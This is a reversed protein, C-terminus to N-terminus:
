LQASALAFDARDQRPRGRLRREIGNGALHAPSATGSVQAEEAYAELLVLAFQLYALYLVFEPKTVKKMVTAKISDFFYYPVLTFSGQIMGEVTIEESRLWYAGFWVAFGVILGYPFGTKANADITAIGCAGANIM